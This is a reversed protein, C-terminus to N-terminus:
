GQFNSGQGMIDVTSPKMLFKNIKQYAMFFRVCRQDKDPKTMLNERYLSKVLNEQDAFLRFRDFVVIM